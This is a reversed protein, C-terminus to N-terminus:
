AAEGQGSSSAGGLARMKQIWEDQRAKLARIKLRIAEVQKPDAGKAEAESVQREFVDLQAAVDLWRDELADLFGEADPPPLPPATGVGGSRLEQLAADREVIADRLSKLKAAAEFLLRDKTAATKAAAADQAATQTSSGAGAPYPRFAVTVGPGTPAPASPHEPWDRTHMPAILLTPEAAGSAFAQSKSAYLYATIEIWPQDTVTRARVADTSERLERSDRLQRIASKATIGPQLATLRIAIMRSSIAIQFQARPDRATAGNGSTPTDGKGAGLEFVQAWLASAARRLKGRATNWPPQQLEPIQHLGDLRPGLASSPPWYETFVTSINEIAAFPLIGSRAFPDALSRLLVAVETPDPATFDLWTWRDTVRAAEIQARDEATLETAQYAIMWPVPRGQAANAAGAAQVMADLKPWRIAKHWPVLILSAPPTTGTNAAAEGFKTITQAEDISAPLIVCQVESRVQAFARSLLQARERSLRDDMLLMASVTKQALFAWGKVCKDAIL